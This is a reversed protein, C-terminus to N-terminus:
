YTAPGGSPTWPKEAIAYMDSVADIVVPRDLAFAKNLADPLADPREIRMGVCGFGEAITAFDIDPFRWM